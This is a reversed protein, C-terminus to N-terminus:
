HSSNLRTSKRDTPEVVLQGSLDAVSQKGALSRRLLDNSGTPELDDGVVTGQAGRDVHGDGLVGAHGVLDAIALESRGARQDARDHLLHAACVDSSWDSIRM